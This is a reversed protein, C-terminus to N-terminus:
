RCQMGNLTFGNPNSNDHYHFGYFGYITINKVQQEPQIIQNESLNQLTIQAGNQRYSAGSVNYIYIHPNNTYTWNLVWGNILTKGTNTISITASFQPGQNSIIIYGVSCAFQPPPATAILQPTPTPVIVPMVTIVRTPSPMPTPTIALPTITAKHAINKRIAQQHINTIPQMQRQPVFNYILDLTGFLVLALLMIALFVKKSTQRPKNSLARALLVEKTGDARRQQSAIGITGAQAVLTPQPSLKKAAFLGVNTNSTPIPAAKELPHVTAINQTALDSTIGLAALFTHIDGYRQGPDKSLAKLLTHEISPTLDPNFQRPPILSRVKYIKNPDSKSVMIFPKQGTLLEYAILSLAYRDSEKGPKGKNTHQQSIDYGLTVITQHKTSNHSISAPFVLFDALMAQNQKNFVINQTKLNGHTIEAQHATNLAEGVRALLAYIEELSLGQSPQWKLRDYLSGHEAYATVIYPIAKDISADLIPLIFRHRFAKLTDARQLFAEREERTGLEFDKKTKILFVQDPLTDKKALYIFGSPTTKFIATLHYDGLHNGEISHVDFM